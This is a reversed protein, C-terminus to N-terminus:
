GIAHQTLGTSVVLRNPTEWRAGGLPVLEYQDKIGRLIILFISNWLQSNGLRREDWQYFAVQRKLWDFPTVVPNSFQIKLPSSLEPNELEYNEVGLYGYCM